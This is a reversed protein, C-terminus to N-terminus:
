GKGSAGAKRPRRGLQRVAFGIIVLGVVIFLGYARIATASARCHDPYDAAVTAHFGEFMKQFRPIFFTM